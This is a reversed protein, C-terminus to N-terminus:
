YISPLQALAANIKPLSPMSVSFTEASAIGLPLGLALAQRLAKRMAHEEAVTPHAALVPEPEEPKHFLHALQQTKEHWLGMVTAKASAIKGKAKQVAAGVPEGIHHSFASVAGEKVAVAAVVTKDALSKAAGVPDAMVEKGTAVVSSAVAVVGRVPASERVWEMGEEVAHTARQWGHQLAEHAEHANKRVQTFWPHPEAEHAHLAVPAALVPRRAAPKKAVHPAKAHTKEVVSHKTHHQAHSEKAIVDLTHNTEEAVHVVWEIAGSLSAVRAASLKKKGDKGTPASDIETKVKDVIGFLDRAQTEARAIEDQTDPDAEARLQDAKREIELAAAQVDRLQLQLQSIEGEAAIPPNEEDGGGANIVKLADSIANAASSLGEAPPPSFRM